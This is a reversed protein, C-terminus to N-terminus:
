RAVDEDSGQSEVGHVFAAPGVIAIGRFPHLVLLDSDDSVVMDARGNVALELFKDDDPDRCVQVREVVEILEATQMVRTLRNTFDSDPFLAALRPKALTRYLEQETATSKLLRANREIWRFAFRPASDTKLAASIFINTDVVLRIV